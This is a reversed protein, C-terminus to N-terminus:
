ALHPNGELPLAPPTLDWSGYIYRCFSLLQRARWNFTGNKYTKILGELEACIGPIEDRAAPDTRADIAARRELGYFFLYVYGLDANPHRRGTALWNLYASRATPSAGGYTPYYPLHRATFDEERGVQLSEDILSPEARELGNAEANGSLYVLGDPLSYQHM